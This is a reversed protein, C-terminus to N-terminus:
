YISNLGDSNLLVVDPQRVFTNNYRFQIGTNIMIKFQTNFETPRPFYVARFEITNFVLNENRTRIGAGVGDFLDTKNIAGSEPTLVSVDGFVFPAFKFGLFKYNVFFTTESHLTVRQAGFTSDGSFYRLGFVNNITLPDIGVRNIQRTFSFNIYQRIKVRDFIFLPSYYSAGILFSADQAKGKYLFVGSRLFFQAFAGRKSVVYENADVGTYLRNLYLQRYWGSTFAVNYGKPIDETTGFGYIYNTKYFDQRFFTFSTLAAERDNFRFNFTKGIQQPVSDFDTRFYRFALFRRDRVATNNLFRNSGLNWGIWGDQTHYDYKYFISDPQHYVNFNQFKGVMFGGALHANPAYLPRDLRLFWAREDPTGNYINSNIQTYSATANVFSNGINSKSYLLQPGFNPSRAQELNMGGQIRQGMGLFNAESVNGRFSFPPYGLAGVAGAISFLDKVVVVLDVSDPIDPLTTVLIRADQIFNLNRILRENDALKYADVPTNERIFLADRIVWDRTKRHLHNLMRTGFYELRHATDTFTQEFGYGRIFINRIIKGQYPKFPSESKTNLPAITNIVSVSDPRGKVVANRFFQFMGNNKWKSFRHRTSDGMKKPIVTDQARYDINNRIKGSDGLPHITTDHGPRITTDLGPRITRDTAPLVISDKAPRIVTDVPRGTSDRAQGFCFLCCWTCGFAVLLRIM